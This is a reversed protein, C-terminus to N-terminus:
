VFRIRQPDLHLTMQDVGELDLRPAVVEHVAPTKRHPSHQAIYLWAPIRQAHSSLSLEVRLFAFSETRRSGPVWSLEPTTFNPATVVFGRECRINITGAHCHALEPGYAGILPLQLLLNRSAVGLGRVPRAEMALEHRVPAEGALAIAHRLVEHEDFRDLNKRGTRMYLQIDQLSFVLRTTHAPRPLWPNFGNSAPYIALLKTRLADAVHVVGTDVSIVLSAAAVLAIMDELTHTTGALMVNTRAAGCQMAIAQERTSAHHLIFVDTDPMQDALLILLQVAKPVGMSKDPRSGFPNFLVRLRAADRQPRTWSESALQPSTDIFQLGLQRLVYAYKSAFGRDASAQKMKGNVWNLGDDLSFVNRPAILRILFLERARIRGAPHVITDVGRLAHWLRILEFLGPNEQSIIVDHVGFVQRHLNALGATTVASVCVDDLKGAERYFFSSVVADGIKGDWRVILIRRAAGLPAPRLRDLMARGIRRFLNKATARILYM